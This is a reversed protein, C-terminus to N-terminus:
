LYRARHRADNLRDRRTRREHEILMEEHTRPLDSFPKRESAGKQRNKLLEFM